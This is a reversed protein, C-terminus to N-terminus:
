DSILDVLDLRVDEPVDPLYLPGDLLSVVLYGGPQGPLLRRGRDVLVAGLLAARYVGPLLARLLLKNLLGLRKQPVCLPQLADLAEGGRLLAVGALLVQPPEPSLHVREPGFHRRYLRLRLVNLCVLKGRRFPADGLLRLLVLLVLVAQVRVLPLFALQALLFLREVLHVPLEGVQAVRELVEPLFYCLHLRRNVTDM